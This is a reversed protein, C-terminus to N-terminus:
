HINALVWIYKLNDCSPLNSSADLPLSGPVSRFMSYLM